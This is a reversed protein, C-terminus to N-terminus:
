HGDDSKVEIVQPAPQVGSLNINISFGSGQAAAANNQKPELDGLKSLVKLVEIRTNIGVDDHLADEFVKELINDAMVGAKLRFTKGSKYLESKVKDVEVLFPKFTSLFKIDEDSYGWRPAIDELEELGTACELIFKPDMDLYKSAMGANIKLAPTSTSATM